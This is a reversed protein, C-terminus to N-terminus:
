KLILEIDWVMCFQNVVFIVDNGIEMNALFFNGNWLDDHTVSLHIFSYKTNLLEKSQIQFTM